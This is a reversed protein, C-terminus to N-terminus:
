VSCFSRRRCFFAMIDRRYVGVAPYGGRIGCVFLYLTQREKGSEVRHVFFRVMIGASNLGFALRGATPKTQEEGVLSPQEIMPGLKVFLSFAAMCVILILFEALLPLFYELALEKWTSRIHRSYNKFARM